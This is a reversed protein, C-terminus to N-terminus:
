GQHSYFLLKNKSRKHQVLNEELDTLARINQESWGGFRRVAGDPHTSQLRAEVTSSARLISFATGDDVHVVSRGTNQGVCCRPWSRNVIVGAGVNTLTTRKSSASLSVEIGAVVRNTQAM